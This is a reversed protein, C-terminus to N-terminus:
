PLPFATRPDLVQVDVWPSGRLPLFAAQDTSLLQLGSVHSAAAIWIDNHDQQIPLGKARAHSYLDAWREHMGSDAVQIVIMDQIVRTLKERRAPGWGLAFAKLEAITVECIAPRFRSTSLEFQANVSQSFFSGQRTAHLVINTDLLYGRAAPM